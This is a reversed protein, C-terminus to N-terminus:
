RTKAPRWKSSNQFSRASRTHHKWWPFETQSTSTCTWRCLSPDTTIVCVSVCLCVCVCVCVCLTMVSPGPVSAGAPRAAPVALARLFGAEEADDGPLPARVRHPQRSPRPSRDQLDGHGPFQGQFSVLSRSAASTRMHNRWTAPETGSSARQRAEPEPRLTCTGPSQRRRWRAWSSSGTWTGASLSLSFGRVVNQQNQKVQVRHVQPPPPPPPSVHHLQHHLGTQPDARQLRHEPGHHGLQGGLEQRHHPRLPVHHPEGDQLEQRHHWRWPHGSPPTPPPPSMFVQVFMGVHYSSVFLHKLTFKPKKTQDVDWRSVHLLWM